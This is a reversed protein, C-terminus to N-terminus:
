ADADPTFVTAAAIAVAESTLIPLDTARSHPVTVHEGAKQHIEVMGRLLERYITLYKAANTM